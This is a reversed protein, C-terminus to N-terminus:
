SRNVCVCLCFYRSYFFYMNLWAFGLDFNKGIVSPYKSRRGAQRGAQGGAMIWGDMWELLVPVYM